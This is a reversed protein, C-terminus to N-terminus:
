GTKNHQVFLLGIDFLSVILVPGRRGQPHSISFEGGWGWFVLCGGKAM